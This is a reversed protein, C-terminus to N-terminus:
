SACQRASACPTTTRESAIPPDGQATRRSNSAHKRPGLALRTPTELGHSTSWLACVGRDSVRLVRYTHRFGDSLSAKEGCRVGTKPCEPGQGEMTRPTLGLSAVPLDKANDGKTWPITGLVWVGPKAPPLYALM